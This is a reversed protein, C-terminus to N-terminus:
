MVNCSLSSSSPASNPLHMSGELARATAEESAAHLYGRREIEAYLDTLLARWRDHVLSAMRVRAQNRKPHFRQDPMLFPPILSRSGEGEHQSGNSRSGQEHQRGDGHEQAAWMERRLLEDYVDWTIEAFQARTLGRLREKGLETTAGVLQTMVPLSMRKMAEFLRKMAEQSTAFSKDFLQRPVSPFSALTSIEWNEIGLSEYSPPSHRVISPPGRSIRFESEFPPLSTALELLPRGFTYYHANKIDDRYLPLAIVSIASVDSLSLASLASWANPRTVSSHFSYDVSDRQASQYPRSQQLYRDFHIFTSYPEDTTSIEDGTRSSGILTSALSDRRSLISEKDFYDEMNVLRHALDTNKELLNSVRSSLETKRKKATSDSDSVLTLTHVAISGSFISM